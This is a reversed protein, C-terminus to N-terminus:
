EGTRLVKMQLVAVGIMVLFLIVGVASAEGFNMNAFADVYIYYELTTTSFGPGGGTMVYILAFLNTFANVISFVTFFEVYRKMLPLIVHRLMASGRAGDLRAAELIEPPIAGLGALYVILGTGMFTWIATVILAALATPGNALWDLPHIHVVRLLANFPGHYSYIYAWVIGVVTFSLATTAFIALRFFRWGRVHSNIMVALVLPFLVWLPICALLILDNLAITGFTSSHLLNMYNGLGVWTATSGNWDFFSYYFAEVIPTLLFFALVAVAPLLYLMGVLGVNYRGLLRRRLSPRSCALTLQPEANELM